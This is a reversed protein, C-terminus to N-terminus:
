QNLLYALTGLRNKTGLRKYINKLHNNITYVSVNLQNAMSKDPLGIKILECVEIQKPTLLPSLQMDKPLEILVLTDKLRLRIEKGNPLTYQLPKDNILKPILVTSKHSHSDIGIKNIFGDEAELINGHIDAIARYADQSSCQRDFNALINMSMAEVFHPDIISKILKDKPTFTKDTNFRYLAIAQSKNSENAIYLTTLVDRQNFKKCHYKFLDSQYFAEKNEFVDEFTFTVNSNELAYKGIPDEDLSEKSIYKNYNEIFNNPLEFVFTDLNTFALDHDRRDFWIAGGFTILNKLSNLCYYRFDNMEMQRAHRYITAIYQSITVQEQHTLENNMKIKGNILQRYETISM